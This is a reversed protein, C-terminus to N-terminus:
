YSEKAYRYNRFLIRSKGGGLLFTTIASGITNLDLHFQKALEVLELSM